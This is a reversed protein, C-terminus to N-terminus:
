SIPDDSQTVSEQTKSWIIAIQCTMKWPFVNHLLLQATMEVPVRAILNTSAAPNFLLPMKDRRSLLFHPAVLLYLYLVTAVHWVCVCKVSRKDDMPWKKNGMLPDPYELKFGKEAFFIFSSHYVGNSLVAFSSETTYMSIFFLRESFRFSIVFFSCTRPTSWVGYGLTSCPAENAVAM